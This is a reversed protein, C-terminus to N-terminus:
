TSMSCIFCRSWEIIFSLILLDDIDCSCTCCSCVHHLMTFMICCFLCDFCLSLLLMMMMALVVLGDDDLTLDDDDDQLVVVYIICCLL